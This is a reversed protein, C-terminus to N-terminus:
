TKATNKLLASNVLQWYNVALPERQGPLENDREERNRRQNETRDLHLGNGHWIQM